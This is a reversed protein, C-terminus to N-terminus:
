AVGRRQFAERLAQRYRARWQVDLLLESLTPRWRYGARRARMARLVCDIPYAAMEDVIVEIALDEDVGQRQTGATVAVTRAWEQAILAEGNQEQRAPRCLAGVERWAQGMPGPAANPLDIGTIESDFQGDEGTFSRSNVVPLSGLLQELSAAVLQQSERETLAQRARQVTETEAPLKAVATESHPTGTSSADASAPSVSGSTEFNKPSLMPTSGSNSLSPVSPPLHSGIRRFGQAEAPDDPPHMDM